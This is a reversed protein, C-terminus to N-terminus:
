EKKMELADLLICARTIVEGIAWFEGDMQKLNNAKVRLMRREHRLLPAIIDIYGRCVEANVLSVEPCEDKATCKECPVKSKACKREIDKGM